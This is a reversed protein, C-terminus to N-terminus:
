LEGRFARHQLSAFLADCEARASQQAKRLREIEIVNSAFQAQLDRPPVGLEIRAVIAKSVEKFTAGTGLGELYPRRLRLWYLLFHSDLAGKRPVFSKFGQNTAM